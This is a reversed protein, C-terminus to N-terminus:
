LYFLLVTFFNKCVYFYFQYNLGLFFQIQLFFKVFLIFYFFLELFRM